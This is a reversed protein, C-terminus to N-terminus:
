MTDNLGVNDHQEVKNLGLLRWVEQGCGRDLLIVFEIKGLYHNNLKYRYGKESGVNIFHHVHLHLHLQRTLLIGIFFM